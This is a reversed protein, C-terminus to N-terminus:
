RMFMINFRFVQGNVGGDHSGTPKELEVGVWEGPGYATEGIFRVTGKRKGMVVVQEGVSLHPEAAPQSAGRM